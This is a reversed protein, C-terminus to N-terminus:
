LQQEILGSYSWALRTWKQLRNTGQVFAAKHQHSKRQRKQELFQEM